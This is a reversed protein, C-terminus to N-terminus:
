VFLPLIIELFLPLYKLALEFFRTLNDIWDGTAGFVGEISEGDEIAKEEIFQRFATMMAPVKWVLGRLFLKGEAHIESRDVAESFADRLRKRKLIAAAPVVTM